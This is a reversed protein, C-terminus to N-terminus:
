LDKVVHFLAVKDFNKVFVAATQVVCCAFHYDLRLKVVDSNLAVSYENDTVIVPEFDAHVVQFAFTDDLRFVIANIAIM